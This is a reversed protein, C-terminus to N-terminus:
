RWQPPRRLIVGNPKIVEDPFLSRLLADRGIHTYGDAVRKLAESKRAPPFAVIVRKHPYLRKVTQIPGVLDSDGSILLFLDAQDQFAGTLMEVAINVDTMKEHHTLHASGCTHCVVTQSLFHGYYIQFNPLTQLAELYIAQRRNRDGPHRVITTFYKTSLLTQHPKLLNSTLAQLNLWYAWKWNKERLGYYLNYGDIYSIVRLM